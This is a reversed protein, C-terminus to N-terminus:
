KGVAKRGWKGYGVSKPKRREEHEHPPTEVRTSLAALLRKTDLQRTMDTVGALADTFGEGSNVRGGVLVLYPAPDLLMAAHAVISYGDGKPLDLDVVIADARVQHMVEIAQKADWAMSVSVGKRALAQRLSMLADVDAGVTLIRAGKCVFDGLKRLISDPELPPIVPEVAMLAFGLAGDPQALCGWFRATCGAKRLAGLTNVAGHATLNVLVRAPNLAAVAAAAAADPAITYLAHGPVEHTSWAQAHDLVVMAPLGTTDAPLAGDEAPVSIVTVSTDDEPVTAAPMAEAVLEIPAPEAPADAVPPTLAADRLVTM